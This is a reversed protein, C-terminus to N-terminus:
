KQNPNEKLLLGDLEIDNLTYYPKRIRYMINIQPYEEGTLLPARLSLRHTNQIYLFLMFKVTDVCVQKHLRDLLYILM